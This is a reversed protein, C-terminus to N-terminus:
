PQFRVRERSFSGDPFELRIEAELALAETAHFLSGNQLAARELVLERAQGSDEIRLIVRRAHLFSPEQPNWRVLFGGPQKELSLSPTTLPALVRPAPSAARRRSQVFLYACSALIAASLLLALWRPRPSRLRHSAARGASAIDEPRANATEGNGRRPAPAPVVRWRPELPAAGRHVTIEAAGGPEVELLLFLDRARFFRQHLSIEDDRLVAG